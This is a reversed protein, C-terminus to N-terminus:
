LVVVATPNLGIADISYKLKGLKDFCYVSGPVIYDSEMIFLDGTIEDISISNIVDIETGDSVFNNSIVENTLCDYVIVSYPNGYSGKIIYAKNDLILFKNPSSIEEITEVEGTTINLKQFVAPVDFYNGLASIYINGKSDTDLNTPNVGVEIEQIVEFSTLDIISLTNDFGSLGGSNAVYLKNNKAVIGDPDMGVLVSGDINLSSTDIRTVTDDYSTVYVKGGHSTIQRPQKSVGGETKMSIQKISKGTTAEVVEITGSVNVVIYLKSGYLIIDNGVDGLGRGNVRKFYERTYTNTSTNYKALSSNNQNFGGENLIIVENSDKPSDIDIQSNDDSCSIFLLLSVALLYYFLKNM